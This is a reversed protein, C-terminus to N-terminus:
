WKFYDREYLILRYNWSYKEIVIYFCMIIGLMADYILYPPLYETGRITEALNILSITTFIFEKLAFYGLYKKFKFNKPIELVFFVKYILWFDIMHKFFLCIMCIITSVLASTADLGWINDIDKWFSIIYLM